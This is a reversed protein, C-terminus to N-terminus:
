EFPAMHAPIVLTSSKLISEIESAHHNYWQEERKFIHIPAHGNKFTYHGIYLKTSTIIAAFSFPYTTKRVELRSRAESSLPLTELLTIGSTIRTHLLSKEAEWIGVARHAIEDLSDPDMFLLTVRDGRQLIAEVLRFGYELLVSHSASVLTYDGPEDFIADFAKGQPWEELFVHAPTYSLSDLLPPMTKKAVTAKQAFLEYGILGVMMLLYANVLASDLSAFFSIGGIVISGLAIVVKAVQGFNQRNVVQQRLTKM